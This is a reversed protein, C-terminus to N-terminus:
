LRLRPLKVWWIRDAYIWRSGELDKFINDDGITFHVLSNKVAYMCKAGNLDEVNSWHKFWEIGVEDCGNANTINENAMMESVFVAQRHFQYQYGHRAKRNRVECISGDPVAFSIYDSEPMWNDAYRRYPLANTHAGKAWAMEHQRTVFAMKLPAIRNLTRANSAM